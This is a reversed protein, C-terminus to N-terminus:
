QINEPYGIDHQSQTGCHEVSRSHPQGLKSSAAENSDGVCRSGWDLKKKQPPPANETPNRDQRERVIPCFKRVILCRANECITSHVQITRPEEVNKTGQKRFLWWNRKRLM